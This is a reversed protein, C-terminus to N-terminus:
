KRHVYRIYRKGGWKDNEDDNETPPRIALGRKKIADFLANDNTQPKQIPKQIPIQIPKTPSSRSILVKAPGGRPAPRSSMTMSPTSITKLNDSSSKTPSFRSILVKAPGGRPAPRSIAPMSPTSITKLNQSSSQKIPPPLPRQPPPSSVFLSQKPKPIPLAKKPQIIPPPLARKLKPSPLPKQSSKIKHEPYIKNIRGNKVQLAIYKTPKNLDRVVPSFVKSINVDDTFNKIPKVKKGTTIILKGNATEMLNESDVSVYYARNLNNYFKPLINNKLSTQLKEITDIKNDGTIKRITPPTLLSEDVFYIKHDKNKAGGESDSTENKTFGTFFNTFTDIISGGNLDIDTDDLEYFSNDINDM